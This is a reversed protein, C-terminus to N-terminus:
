TSSKFCAAIAEAFGTAGASYQGLQFRIIMRDWYNEPTRKDRYKSEDPKLQSSLKVAEDYDRLAATLQGRSKYVQARSIHTEARFPSDNKELQLSTSYDVIAYDYDKFHNFVEARQAYSTPRDPLHALARNCDELAGLKDDLKLREAIRYSLFQTRDSERKVTQIAKTLAKEAEKHRKLESLLMGRSFHSDFSKSDLRCATEYDALARDYEGGRWFHRARELYINPNRPAIEIATNYELLAESWFLTKARACHALENEPEFFIAANSDWLAADYERLQKFLAARAIYADTSRPNLQLAVEFDRFARPQDTYRLLVGRKIYSTENTPDIKIATDYDSTDDLDAFDRDNTDARFLYAELFEPRLELARNIYFDASVQDHLRHHAWAKYYYAVANKKDESLVCNALKLAEDNKRENLKMRCLKLQAIARESLVTGTVNSSQELFRVLRDAKFVTLGIVKFQSSEKKLVLGVEFDFSPRQAQVAVVTGRFRVEIDEDPLQKVELIKESFLFQTNKPIKASQITYSLIDYMSLNANNAPFSHGSDKLDFSTQVTNNLWSKAFKCARREYDTHFPAPQAAVTEQKIKALFHQCGYSVVAGNVSAIVVVAGVALYNYMFRGAISLQFM